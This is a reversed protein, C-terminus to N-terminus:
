ILSAQFPSTGVHDMINIVCLYMPKHPIRQHVVIDVYMRFLPLEWEVAHMKIGSLKFMIMLLTLDWYFPVTHQFLRVNGM